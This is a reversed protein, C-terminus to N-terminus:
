RGNIALRRRGIGFYLLGLGFTLLSLTSPEDISNTGYFAISHIEYGVPLSVTQHTPSIHWDTRPVEYAMDLHQKGPGVGWIAVYTLWYDSGTFDWWILANNTASFDFLNTFFYTGGNILGYRSVWGNLYTPGEPLDFVGHAAEDFFTYTLGPSPLVPTKILDARVEAAFAFFLALCMAIRM